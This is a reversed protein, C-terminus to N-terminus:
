NKKKDGRRKEERQKWKMEVNWPMWDSSPARDIQNNLARQNRQEKKFRNNLQHVECQDFSIARGDRRISFFYPARQQKNAIKGNRTEDQARQERENM